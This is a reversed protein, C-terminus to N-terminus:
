TKFSRIQYVQAFFRLPTYMLFSEIRNIGRYRRNFFRNFGQNIRGVQAPILSEKELYFTKFGAESFLNKIKKRTYRIKHGGMKFTRALFDNLAYKNPLNFMLNLGGPKLIRNIELLFSKDNETHEMVGFSIIVDFKHNPFKSNTTDDEILIYGERRLADWTSSTKIDSGMLDLDPRIKKLMMQIYGCGCGVELVKARQPIIKACDRIQKRFRSISLNSEIQYARKGRANYFRLFFGRVEKEVDLVSKM